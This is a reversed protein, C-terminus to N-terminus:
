YNENEKQEKYYQKRADLYAQKQTDNFNLEDFYAQLDDDHYRSITFLQYHTM